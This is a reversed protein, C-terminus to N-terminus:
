HLLKNKDYPIINGDDFDYGTLQKLADCFAEKGSNFPGMYNAWGNKESIKIMDTSWYWGPDLRSVPKGDCTLTGELPTMIKDNLIAIILEGEETRVYHFGVPFDDM